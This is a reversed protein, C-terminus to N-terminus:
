SPPCKARAVPRTQAGGAPTASTPEAVKGACLEGLLESAAELGARREQLAGIAIAVVGSRPLVIIRPLAQEFSHGHLVREANVRALYVRDSTETIYYGTLGSDDGSRLVAIPQLKPHDWTRYLTRAAGFLLVAIFLSAGFLAFGQTRWGVAVTGAALFIGLVVLLVFHWFSPVDGTLALGVELAVLALGAGVVRVRVGIRRSGAQTVALRARELSEKSVSQMEDVDIGADELSGRSTPALTEVRTFAAQARQHHQEALAESGLRAAAEADDAAEAVAEAASVTEAAIPSLTGQRGAPPAEPIPGVSLSPEDSAWRKRVDTIPASPVVNDAAFLFALFVVALALAIYPLLTSLGVAVLEGTPIVSVAKDAPIAVKDFRIWLVAGGVVAMFGVVGVGTAIAGVVALVRGRNTAQADSGGADGMVRLIKPISFRTLYATCGSQRRKPGASM